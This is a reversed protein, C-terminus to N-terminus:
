MLANQPRSVLAAAEDKTVLRGLAGAVHLDGGVEIRGSASVGGARVPEFGATRILGEVETGATADDTAYFLVAREPQRNTESSLMPAPITGFAKAFRTGAPLL